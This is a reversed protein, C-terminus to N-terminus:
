LLALGAVDCRLMSVVTDLISNLTTELDLSSRIRKSADLLTAVELRSREAQARGAQERSLRERERNAVDAQKAVRVGYYVSGALMLLVLAVLAYLVNTVSDAADQQRTLSAQQIGSVRARIDALTTVADHYRADMQAS